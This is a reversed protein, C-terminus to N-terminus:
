KCVLLASLLVVPNRYSCKYICTGVLVFNYCSIFSVFPYAKQGASQFAPDLDRMSVSM